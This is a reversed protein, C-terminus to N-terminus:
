GLLWGYAERLAAPGGSELVEGHALIVRDFDWELIRSVARGVEAHDSFFFSKALRSPGFKGLAGNIRLFLRTGFGDVKRFNFALDTVVLTRTSRHLFVFENMKPCGGVLLCEFDDKWPHNEPDLPRTVLDTRIKEDIGSPGYVVADPFAAATEAVFMHHLLNPAVIAEVPGNEELWTRIAPTLPGPSHLWLGGSALRVLTSRTGLQIGGPMTFSHDIVWLGDALTRVDSRTAEM